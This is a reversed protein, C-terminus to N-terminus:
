GQPRDTRDRQLYVILPFGLVLPLWFSLVRYALVVVVAVPAPVGLGAYLGVMSSEIVGVGGPIIFAMKGLLLPLGYGVLVVGPTVAGGAAAFLLYLTLMDFLVNLTAGLAPGRWRGAMLMDAAEFLGELWGRIRDAPQKGRWRRDAAGALRLLEARRRFGWLLLGSIGALITLIAAFLIIQRRSLDHAALLHVSGALSIVVLILNDLMGPLTGALASVESRVGERRMWRYLAASSGVIGGAIMGFSTGALTMLTGTWMSVSGGSLRALAGLLYGSGLYSAVQAGAALLVVWIRMGRIVQYSHQLSALQPLVLHVALGLVILLFMYRAARSLHVRMRRRHPQQDTM